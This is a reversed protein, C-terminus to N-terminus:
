AFRTWETALWGPIMWVAVYLLLNAASLLEVAGLLPLLVGIVLGMAGAITHIWAGAQLASRLVHASNLAYVRPALGPKTVLAIVPADRDPEMDSLAQRTEREPFVVNRPRVKLKQRIFAPTLMFDQSVLVPTVSNWGCLYRLGAASSQSCGYSVAFVGSFQGEIFTYLADPIQAGRPIKMDVSEMFAATGVLVQTGNVLGYLGGDYVTLDEVYQNLGDRGRPLKELAGHLGSGNAAALAATYAVVKGPDEDGYFKTGGMRIVDGPFLDASSLPYVALREAQSIGQWGCLVAGLRQLRKQLISAPRSMSIFATAPMGLLLCAAFTRVAATLTQSYGIWISVAAGAALTILGCRRLLIDPASPLTYHRLFHEPEGDVAAYGPREQWYAPLKVMATLDEAKRLTDMQGIETVREQYAACQAM